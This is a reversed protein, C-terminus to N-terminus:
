NRLIGGQQGLRNCGRYCAWVTEWRTVPAPTDRTTAHVGNSPLDIFVNVRVGASV